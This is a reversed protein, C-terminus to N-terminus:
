EDSSIEGGFLDFKRYNLGECLYRLILIHVILTAVFIGLNGIDIAIVELKKQLPTVDNTKETLAAM